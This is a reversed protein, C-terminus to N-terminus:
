TLVLIEGRICQATHLIGAQIKYVLHNRINQGVGLDERKFSKLNLIEETLAGLKCSCGKNTRFILTLPSSQDSFDM